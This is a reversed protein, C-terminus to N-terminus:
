KGDDDEKPPAELLSEDEPGQYSGVQSALDARGYLAHNCVTCQGVLVKAGRPGAVMVMSRDRPCTVATHITPDDQVSPAPQDDAPQKPM